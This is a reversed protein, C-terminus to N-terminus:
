FFSPLMSPELKLNPLPDKTLFFFGSSILCFLALFNLRFTSRALVAPPMRHPLGQNRLGARGEWRRLMVQEQRGEQM